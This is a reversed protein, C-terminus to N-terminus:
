DRTKAFQVISQELYFDFLQLRPGLFNKYAKALVNFLSLYSQGSHEAFTENAFPLQQLPIQQPSRNRSACNYFYIKQGM